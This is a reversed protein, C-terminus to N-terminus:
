GDDEETQLAAEACEISGTINFKSYEEPYKSM